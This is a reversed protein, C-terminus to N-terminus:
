FFIYILAQLARKGCNGQGAMGRKGGGIGIIHFANIGKRLLKVSVSIRPIYKQRDACGAVAAVNHSGCGDRFGHADGHDRQGATRAAPQLRKGVTGDNHRTGLGKHDLFKVQRNIM